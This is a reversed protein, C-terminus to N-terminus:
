EWGEGRELAAIARGHEIHARRLDSLHQHRKFNKFWAADSGAMIADLAHRGFDSRILQQLFHSGLERRGALCAECHSVKAGTRLALEEAPKNKYIDLFKLLIPSIARVATPQNGSPQRVAPKTGRASSAVDSRM